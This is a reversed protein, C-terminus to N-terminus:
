DKRYLPKREVIADRVTGRVDIQLRTGPETADPPVYAMGIGRELCPSFSGSTVEGGTAEPNSPPPLIPHQPIHVGGRMCLNDGHALSSECQLIIPKAPALKKDSQLRAGHTGPCHDM